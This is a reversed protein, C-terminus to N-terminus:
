RPSDGCWRSRRNVEGVGHEIREEVWCTGSKPSLRTSAKTTGGSPRASPTRGMPWSKSGRDCEKAKRGEGAAATRSWGLLEQLEKSETSSGGASGVGDYGGNRWDHSEVLFITM